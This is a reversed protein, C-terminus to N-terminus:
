RRNRNGAIASMRISAAAPMRCRDARSDEDKALHDHCREENQKKRPSPFRSPQLRRRRIFTPIGDDTLVNAISQRGIRNEQRDDVRAANTIIGAARSKAPIPNWGFPELWREHKQSAVPITRQQQDLVPLPALVHFPERRLRFESRQIPRRDRTIVAAHACINEIGLIAVPEHSPFPDLGTDDSGRGCRRSRADALEQADPTM